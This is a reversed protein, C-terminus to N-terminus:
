GEEEQESYEDAIAACLEVLRKRWKQEDPSLEDDMADYCEKLAQVTNEFRCYSMNMAM